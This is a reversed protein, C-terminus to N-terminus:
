TPAGGGGRELEMSVGGVVTEPAVGLAVCGCNVGRWGRGSDDVWGGCGVCGASLTGVDM